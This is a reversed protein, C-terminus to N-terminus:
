GNIIFHAENSAGGPGAQRKGPADGGEREGPERMTGKGEAVGNM